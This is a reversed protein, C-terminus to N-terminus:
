ASILAAAGIIGADRGLAAPLIPPLLTADRVYSHARVYARVPVFLAEGAGSVGGGLLIREPFLVNLLSVLGMGVYEAYRATVALAAADGAAAAAYIAKGDLRECRRLASDPANAAAREAQRMLASASAYAEWCGAEGCSCKEGDMAIRTHGFEGGLSRNGACIKGDLIYGGGIGTGLTLVLACACGKAAGAIVEGLAACDGDNALRVPLRLRERLADAADFCDWDLNHAYRVLGSATDCSGPTGLGAGACDARSLGADRLAREACAAIADPITNKTDTKPTEAAARSVIRNGADVVGVAVNTGGLDIGLRYM